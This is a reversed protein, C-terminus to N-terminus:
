TLQDLLVCLSWKVESNYRCCPNKVDGHKLIYVVKTHTNTHSLPLSHSYVVWGSGQVAAGATSIKKILNDLSGFQTTIASALPGKPEEGGGEQVYSLSM